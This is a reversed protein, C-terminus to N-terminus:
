DASAAPEFEVVETKWVRVRRGHSRPPSYRWSATAERAADGLGYGPDIMVRTERIEGDPGILLNVFVRGKIGAEVAERALRPTPSELLRLPEDLDSQAVIPTPRLPTEEDRSDDAANQRRAVPEPATEEVEQGAAPSTTGAPEAPEVAPPEQQRAPVPAPRERPQPEVERVEQPQAPPTSAPRHAAQRPRPRVPNKVVQTAPEEPEGAAPVQRMGEAADDTRVAPVPEEAAPEAAEVTLPEDLATVPPEARLPDHSVSAVETPPDSKPDFLLLSGGAGVAILGAFFAFFWGLGFRRKKPKEEEEDEDPLAAAPRESEAEPEGHIGTTSLREVVDDLSAEEEPTPATARRPEELEMSFDDTLGTSTWGTDAPEPAEPLSSDLEELSSLLDATGADMGRLEAPIAPEAAASTGPFPPPGSDEDEMLEPAPQAQPGTGAFARELAFDLDDDAEDAAAPAPSAQPAASRAKSVKPAQQANPQPAPQPASPQGSPAFEGTFGGTTNQLSLEPEHGSTIERRIGAGDEEAVPDFALPNELVSVPSQPPADADARTETRGRGAAGSKRRAEVAIEIDFGDLAETIDEPDQRGIAAAAAPTSRQSPAAPAECRPQPATNIEGSSTDPGQSAAAFAGTGRSAHPGTLGTGGLARELAHDIDEDTVTSFGELGAVAPATRPAPREAAPPKPAPETAPEAAPIPEPTLLPLEFDEEAPSWASEEGPPDAAIPQPASAMPVLARVAPIIESEQAPRELFVDAGSREAMTRYRQGKYIRSAVVIRPPNPRDPRKLDRCLKFADEGPLMPDLLVLQPVGHSLRERAEAGSTATAAEYGLDRLEQALRQCERRDFDIVLVRANM